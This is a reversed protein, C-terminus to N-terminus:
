NPSDAISPLLQCLSLTLFHSQPRVQIRPTSACPAPVAKTVVQPDSDSAFTVTADITWLSRLPEVHDAVSKVTVLM